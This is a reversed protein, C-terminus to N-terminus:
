KITGYADKTMGAIIGPSNRFMQYKSATSTAWAGSLQRDFSTTGQFTCLM